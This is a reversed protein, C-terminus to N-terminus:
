AERPPARSHTFECSHDAQGAPGAVAIWSVLRPPAHFTIAPAPRPISVHGLHCFECCHDLDDGHFLGPAAASTTIVLLTFVALLAPLRVAFQLWKSAMSSSLGPLLKSQSLM